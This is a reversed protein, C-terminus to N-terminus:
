QETGKGNTLKNLGLIEMECNWLGQRGTAPIPEPLLSINELHWAYRNGGTPTVDVLEAVCLICGFPLDGVAKIGIEKLAALIDTQGALEGREPLRKAAHIALQGRYSTTWSRTEYTKYGHAILSAWPQWLTIVKM